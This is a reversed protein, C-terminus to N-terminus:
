VKGVRQLGIAFYGLYCLVIGGEASQIGMKYTHGESSKKPHTQTSEGAACIVMRVRFNDVKNSQQILVLIREKIYIQPVLVHALNKV